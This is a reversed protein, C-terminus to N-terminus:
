PFGYPLYVTQGPAASLDVDTGITAAYVQAVTVVAENSQASFTNGAADEYTVTALNKIETGAATAAYLQPSVAAVTSFLVGTAFLRAVPNMPFNMRKM